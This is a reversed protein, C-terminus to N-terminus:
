CQSKRRPWTEEESKPMLSDNSLDVAKDRNRLDLVLPHDLAIGISIFHCSQPHRFLARMLAAFPLM